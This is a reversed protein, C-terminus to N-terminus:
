VVMVKKTSHYGEGSLRVVYNGASLNNIYHHNHKGTNLLGEHVVAVQRGQMDFFSLKTYMSRKLEFELAVSYKFPNPYVLNLQLPPYSHETEPSVQFLGLTDYNRGLITEAKANSLGLHDQLITAYIQRYDYQHLLDGNKDLNGLNPNGGIIGGTVPKGIVFLPAASGHDTGRSGNEEVRRGFESFTMLVVKDAVGMQELDAQFSTVAESLQKLIKAHSALQNAHTDFGSLSTLYVPTELGGGILSAVIALQKGISTAPYAMKNKGKDASQKIVSAYNTSQSSIKRLFALEAGALSNVPPDDDATSGSVMQYFLGPSEFVVSMSGMHSQFLMSEVSGIQVAMPHKPAENDFDPYLQSLSRGVWGDFIHQDSNSGSLWIDTARFHSRSHNEYGVNQVIGLKGEDYLNRFGSMAPNLGTYETLPVVEEKKIGIQPRKTYYLDDEYPILTNLGDNGGNMQLLVLIKGNTQEMNLLLPSSFAKVPIGHLGLAVSGGLLSMNRIFARRKM